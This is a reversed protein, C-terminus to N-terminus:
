GITRGGRDVIWPAGDGAVRGNHMRLRRGDGAGPPLSREPPGILVKPEALTTV